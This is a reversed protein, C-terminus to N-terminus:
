KAEQQILSRIETLQKEMAIHHLAIAAIVAMAFPVLLFAPSTDRGGMCYLVIGVAAAALCSALLYEWM